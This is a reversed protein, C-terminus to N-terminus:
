CNLELGQGRNHERNESGGSARLRKVASLTIKAHHSSLLFV